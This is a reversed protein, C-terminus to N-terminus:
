WCCLEACLSSSCSSTLLNSGLSLSTPPVAAGISSSLCAALLIAGFTAGGGYAACGCDDCGVCGVVCGGSCARFAADEAADEAFAEAGPAAGATEYGAAVAVVVAKM